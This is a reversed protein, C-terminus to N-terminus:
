SKKRNRDQASGPGGVSNSKATDNSGPTLSRGLPDANPSAKSPDMAPAPSRFNTGGLAPAGEPALRGYMQMHFEDDTILGYSLAELLRSQKALLQPELETAPRMEAERFGVQVFFPYGMIQFACTFLKSLVVSVPLNLSDANMSFVRAEVSATNVGSEGRGLITSVSKLGAQNQANLTKIVSDINLASAPAKDNVISVEVSDTHVFAEDPAITSFNSRIEAIRAATWAQLQGPDNRVTAPAANRLVEELVKIDMRPFGTLQMIRYLDNIVNQRAVITNIASVFPPTPYASLPSNRYGGYFFTPIDLSINKNGSKPVQEPILKGPLPEYWKLTAPDVLRIEDPFMSKDTVLEAGVAGRLLCLYRMQEALVRIPPRLQFGKTLDTVYGLKVLLQNWIKYGEPEFAGEGNRIEVVMPTDAVTLYAHIAASVDPDATAMFAMLAQSSAGSRVDTLDVLHERYGPVKLPAVGSGAEATPSLALGGAATKRGLGLVEVLKALKGAM